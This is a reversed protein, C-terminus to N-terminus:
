LHHESANENSHIWTKLNTIYCRLIEAQSQHFEDGTKLFLETHLDVTKLINHIKANWPDRTETSWERPM